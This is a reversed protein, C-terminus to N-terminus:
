DLIGLCLLVLSHVFKALSPSFIVARHKDLNLNTHYWLFLANGYDNSQLCKRNLCKCAFHVGMTWVFSIM